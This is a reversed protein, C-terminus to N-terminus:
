HPLASTADVWSSLQDANPVVTVGELTQQLTDASYRGIHADDVSVTIDHGSVTATIESAAGNRSYACGSGGAVQVPHGQSCDIQLAHVYV